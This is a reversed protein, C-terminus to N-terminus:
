SSEVSMVCTTSTTILAKKQLSNRQHFHEVVLTKKKTM